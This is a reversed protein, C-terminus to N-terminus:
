CDILAEPQKEILRTRFADRVGVLDVGRDRGTQGLRGVDSDVGQVLWRTLRRPLGAM